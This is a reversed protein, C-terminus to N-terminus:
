DFMKGDTTWGTYHVEVTDEASPKVGPTAAPKIIKSALGSATKEADAPAAAVDAPAPIDAVVPKEPKKKVDHTSTTDKTDPKTEGGDKPQGEKPQCSASTAVVLTLALVHKLM